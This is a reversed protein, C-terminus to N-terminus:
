IAIREVENLSMDDRDRLGKGECWAFLEGATGAYVCHNNSNRIETTFFELIRNEASREASENAPQLWTGHVSHDVLVDTSM